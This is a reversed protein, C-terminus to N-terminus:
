GSSVEGWRYVMQSPRNAVSVRLDTAQWAGGREQPLGADPRLAQYAEEGCLLGFRRARAALQQLGVAQEIPAGVVCFGLGPLAATLAYGSSLSLALTAAGEEAARWAAQILDAAALADRLSQRAPRDEFAGFVLMVADGCPQLLAGYRQAAAHAARALAQWAALGSPRVGHEWAPARMPAGVLLVAVARAHGATALEGGLLSQVAELPLPEPLAERLRLEVRREQLLGNVARALEGWTGRPVEVKEGLRGDAIRHALTRAHHDRRYIGRLLLAIAPLLAAAVFQGLWILAVAGALLATVAAALRLHRHSPGTARTPLDM